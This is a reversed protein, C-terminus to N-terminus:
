PLAALAGDLVAPPLEVLRPLATFVLAAHISRGPYIGALVARYLALQLVHARAVEDLGAPPPRDTKYDALHISTESVALRDVQGSVVVPAGRPRAIRGVISVEGRSGPAFLPAFRPDALVGLVETVVEDREGDDLGAAALHRRAATERRDASIDPLAQLLRHVLRGRRLARDDAPVGHGARPAVLDLDELATSPSILLAPADPAVERTLFGPLETPVPAPEVDVAPLSALAPPLKRWRWIEGAGDDAPERTADPSLADFILDYWCGEPKGTLGKIGCIVLREAARTMAVYLLRRYEEEAARRVTERAVAVPPVDTAKAGAWVMRGPADPAARPPTLMLLRPPRPGAPRTTTDALIVAPAELGKAGHVTMVRVENRAAEMDRKIETSAGRLWAIFGQLSPTEVNEHHLALNLFEDLADSAEAGLRALMRQRGGEAGLLRAYFDFPKERRATEALQDLRAAAEVWHRHAAARARLTARLSGRRGHALAFLEEEAFGFLPSKLVTALALDDDEMLLADALVMLDMVAIHETLVLRDAGAVAVGADKLARIIAEFLPGRQRVLILIDRPRLPAGGAPGRALWIRVTAAIRRALRLAPSVESVTDFPADWAEMDRRADAEIVPWIEALGPASEHVAQHVTPEAVATLGAHAVPRAFVTDVAGLIDPGSRFSRLFRLSRWPLEASTFAKEFHRRMDAFKRPDAGQFSFISQKEDGVAFVTRGMRRAGEGATFEAVLRRVIEWQKPSTDQAEDVLVHDIGLDLKFLVWAAGTRELLDLSRDILDDYDLLGRRAKEHHYRRVVADAITLLAGTRDRALLARRREVLPVLRDREAALREALVPAENAFAKTCVSKRPALDNTLFVSLYHELRTAGSAAVAALLSGANKQDTSSGRALAAAITRWEAAPLGALMETEVRAVTDDPAVGLTAALEAIAADVSGAATIWQGMAERAGIAERMVEAFTADAAAVIAIALAQGLKSEPKAAAEVLVALRLRDLLDHGAREELVTFRAAVGAEFPFQHLLRTCFAHITQVKLGGPTDLAEAFLRRARARTLDSPWDGEIREIAADLADDDLATWAALTDFVRNAMNAAAAKTFTLCLIKGPPTGALMLRIVRQALVHTKGSGANAAVWASLAPDSAERQLQQVDPPISRPPKV